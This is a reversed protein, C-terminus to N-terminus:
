RVLGEDVFLIENELEFGTQKKVESVVMESLKRIDSSVANGTNIIFNGHWPAVQAGGVQLGRLGAEQVIQGSPKGINRDNKFVSGASPYRFHGKEERDKVYSASKEAISSSDGRSVRFSVSVIVGSGNQFPSKKYDWDKQDMVYERIEYGESGGSVYRASVLVDSISAGYCRANMYAAGGATGPLGAFTEMGSLGNEICFDTVKKIPTGSGCTLSLSEESGYVDIGCLAETSIVAFNIGEDAPVLNSGGGLIFSPIQAQSFAKLLSILSEEDAPAAYLPILGGTKFTTHDSFKENHGIFGRFDEPINFNEM